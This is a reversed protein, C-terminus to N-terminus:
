SARSLRSDLGALRVRIEIVEPSVIFDRAVASYVYPQASDWNFAKACDCYFELRQRLEATPVLLLGAFNNAEIDREARMSAPISRMFDRWEQASSFRASRYMEPHLFYHGLEHAVSFRNRPTNQGWRESDVYISSRNASLWGDIGHTRLLSHVPIIDVYEEALLEVDVPVSRKPDKEKRIKEVINEIQQYNYRNDKKLSEEKM